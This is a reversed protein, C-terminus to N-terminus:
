TNHYGIPELGRRVLEARMADVSVCGPAPQGCNVALWIRNKIESESWKETVNLEWTYFSLKM